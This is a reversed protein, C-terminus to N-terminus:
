GGAAPPKLPNQWSETHRYQLKKYIQLRCYNIFLHIYDYCIDVTKIRRPLRVILFVCVAGNQLFTEPIPSGQVEKEPSYLLM